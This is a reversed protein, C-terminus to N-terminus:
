APQLTMAWDEAQWREGVPFPQPTLSQNRIWWRDARRFLVWQQSSLGPARAHNYPEPGILLTQDMWILGDTPAVTRHPPAVNLVASRSLPSPRHYRIVPFGSARLTAPLWPFDLTQDAQLPQPLRERHSHGPTQFSSMTPDEIPAMWDGGPSRTLWAIQPPWGCRVAFDAPNGGGVGGISLRSDLWIDFGAGRDIWLRWRTDTPTPTAEPLEPSRPDNLSPTFM